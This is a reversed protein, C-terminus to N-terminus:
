PHNNCYICAHSLAASSGAMTNVKTRRNEEKRAEPFLHRGYWPNTAIRVIKEVFCVFDEFDPKRGDREEIDYVNIRWNETVERPLRGLMQRIVKSDVESMGQPVNKLANLCGRIYIAFEDLAAVDNSEIQHWALIKNVLATAVRNGDGYRKHLLRRAEAYGKGPPLHLCTEVIDKAMGTTMQHLYYLKEQESKTKNAVAAEFQRIFNGYHMIDGDFNLLSMRPLQMQRLIDLTPSCLASEADQEYGAFSRCSSYSVASNAVDAGVISVPDKARRREEIKMEIAIEQIEREIQKRQAATEIELHRLKLKNEQQQLQLSQLKDVLPIQSTSPKVPLASRSSNANGEDTKPGLDDLIEEVAQELRKLLETKSSTDSVGRTQLERKLDAVTLHNM